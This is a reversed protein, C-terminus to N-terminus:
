RIQQALTHTHAIHEHWLHRLCTAHPQALAHALIRRRYLLNAGEECAGELGQAQTIIVLVIRQTAYGRLRHLVQAELELFPHGIAYLIQTVQITHYVSERLILLALQLFGQGEMHIVVQIDFVEVTEM